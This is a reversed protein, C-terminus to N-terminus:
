KLLNQQYVSWLTDLDKGGQGHYSSGRGYGGPSVGSYPLGAWEPALKDMVGRFEEKTQIIQDPNVGRGKTLYRGAKEQSAPTFDTLGLANKAGDWTPKMFQYAGAAESTTGWPTPAGINPHRSMDTFQAGGFRRTYGKDGVTGEAYRIVSSLPNWGGSKPGGLTNTSKAAPTGDKTTPKDNGGSVDSIPTNAITTRKDKDKAQAKELFERMTDFEPKIAPEDKMLGLGIAQGAAAIMGAKRQTGAAKNKTKYIDIEAQAQDTVGQAKKEAVRVTREANIAAEKEVARAKIGLQALKDYKPSYKATTEAIDAYTKGADRGAKGWSAANSRPANM